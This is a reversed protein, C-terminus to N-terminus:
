NIRQFDSNCVKGDLLNKLEKENKCKNIKILIEELYKLYKKIIKDTHEVCVYVTNTALIGKKLMEQTIITKIIINNKNKLRFSCLAPIGTIELDINNKKSIKKWGEIIKKGKQKIKKWSKKKKMVELTKLAAVYGIRETWFTSSIFSDNAHKMIEKKGICATIAYGNGLSKGFMALDPEIKYLKHIGGFEHRFGTTCEDFILKINNKKTLQRVKELFNNEPSINRIVEMIVIGINKHAILQKLKEIDNYNFGFITNRLNRIVGTTPINKLLHSNLNNPSELNSALYWDHWGHYGCFAINQKKSSSRAIRVAIANAEAGTRAFKVMGSWPHLAILKKALLVEETCNLTSMNGNQVVKKVANDVEKNGYGLINTGVGMTAMDIFKHGDIDWVYCKKSKSFYTPWNDPLFQQPRKSILMNGGPIIKTAEKWLKTGKKFKKNKM